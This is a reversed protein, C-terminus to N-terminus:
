KLLIMKKTNIFEGAKLQYFYVGSSLNSANFNIEYRGKNQYQNVLTRVERGLIDYVKITVLGNKPVEYQVITSPNFPNPYNQYLRFQVPTNKIDNVASINVPYKLTLNDVYITGSTSEGQVKNGTLQIEIKNLELPYVLPANGTLEVLGTMPANIKDFASSDNLYKKGSAKFINSDADSFLYYLLHKRGDSKVDLFISDPIGFVRIDKNLYILYSSILSNYTFKYYIKFSANGESKQDTALTVTLSDLNEGSFTWGSLNDMEDFSEVGSAVEVSVVCTDSYGNFSAIIDTTGNKKGKFLGTSDIVGVSPDTSILNFKTIPLDHLVSDADYTNITIQVTRTTDTVAYKPNVVFYKFDYTKVFCSDTTNNFNAYVYGSDPQSAPTFIGTPKITGLGSDCSYQIMSPPLIIRNGNKDLATASFSFNDYRFVKISKATLDFSTFDQASSSALVMLTYIFNTGFVRLSDENGGHGMLPFFAGQNYIGLETAVRSIAVGGFLKIGFDNSIGSDPPVITDLLGHFNAVPVEGANIWLPNLIAGCYNIIGKIDTSYGPNGSTGEIDGWKAQDIDAPIENENWYAYHVAIMSGASSGELYIQSTDIGYKAANARFYRVAAKTDQVGRLLAELITRVGKPSEIGIRYDITAAVYGRRAFDKCFPDMETRSGSILSGGHICIVLPRRKLTDGTPQYFDLYLSDTTGSLSLSSGFGINYTITYSPFILDRYRTQAETATIFLFSLVITLIKLLSNYFSKM